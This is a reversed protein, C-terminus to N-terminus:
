KGGYAERKHQATSEPYAKRVGARALNYWRRFPAKEPVMGILYYSLPIAHKQPRDDRLVHM